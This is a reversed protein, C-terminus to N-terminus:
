DLPPFRPERREIFSAVGEAFDPRSSARELAAEARDYSTRFDVTAGERLQRKIEAVASPSCYTAIEDAYRVAHELATEPPTVFEVLGIQGAEEGTLVRGSLLLDNARGSGVLRPLLWAVGYEAPLGRRVFATTLKANRAVFRVDCYLAQVLGVGACAGNIAAILPKRVSLPFAMARHPRTCDDSTAQDQLEDIDGGACFGPGAGTVVIVRIQPDRAADALLEFYREELERTWANLRTPRNFTLVVVGDRRESLVIPEEDPRGSV